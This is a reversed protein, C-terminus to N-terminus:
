DSLNGNKDEYRMQNEYVLSMAKQFTPEDVYFERMGDSANLAIRNIPYGTNSELVKVLENVLEQKEDEPRDDYKTM